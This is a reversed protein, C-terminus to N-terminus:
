CPLRVERSNEDEACDFQTLSSANSDYESDHPTLCSSLDICGHKSDLALVKSLTGDTKQFRYRGRGAHQVLAVMQEDKLYFKYMLLFVKKYRRSSHGTEVPVLNLILDECNTNADQCPVCCVHRSYSGPCSQDPIDGNSPPLDARFRPFLTNSTGATTNQRCRDLVEDLSPFVGLYKKSSQNFYGIWISNSESRFPAVQLSKNPDSGHNGPDSLPSFCTYFLHQDRPM